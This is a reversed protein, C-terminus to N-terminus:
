LLTHNANACDAATEVMIDYDLSGGLAAVAQIQERTLGIYPVYKMQYVLGVAVYHEASLSRIRGAAGAFGNLFETIFSEVAELDLFGSSLPHEQRQWWEHLDFEPRRMLGTSTPSGLWRVNTPILGVHKTIADPNMRESSISLRISVYDGTGNEEVGSRPDKMQM